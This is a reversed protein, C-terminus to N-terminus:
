HEKRYLTEEKGNATKWTENARDPLFTDDTSADRITASHCVDEKPPIHRGNTVWAARSTLMLKGGVSVQGYSPKGTRPNPMRYYPWLVCDETDKTSLRLLESIGQNQPCTQTDKELHTPNFCTANGCRQLIQVFDIPEHYTMVWALRHARESREHGYTGGLRVLGSGNSCTKYPWLICNDTEQSLMECFVTFAQGYPCRTSNPRSPTM